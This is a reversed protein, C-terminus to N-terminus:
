AASTVRGGRLAWLPPLSVPGCTLYIMAKLSEPNRFGYGRHILLAIKSNFGELRSNSLGAEVAAVIGELHTRVMRSSAVMAPIRSRCARALWWELYARAASPDVRRYLDALEEKLEWARYLEGRDRRLRDLVERQAASLRDPGGVLAFRLVRRRRADLGLSAAARARLTDLARNVAAMVHFPDIAIVANPCHAAVAAPYARGMDLTVVEIRACGEPGLETFFAALTAAKTGEGVWIVRPADHDVVVTMAARRRWSREDVGIHRLEGMRSGDMAEAVVRTVIADVAAWSVRFLEAVATKDMHIAAWAIMDELARTHRAGPRAFDVVETRVRRCAPCALRRLDAELYCRLGVVDLHRWRRRRHDYSARSEGGCPCRLRAPLRLRVVVAGDVFTVGAVGVGGPLDLIRKFATCARM